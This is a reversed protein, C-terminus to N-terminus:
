PQRAQLREERRQATVIIDGLQAEAQPVADQAWVASPAALASMAVGGRLALIVRYAPSSM